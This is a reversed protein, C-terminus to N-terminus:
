SFVLRDTVGGTCVIVSKSTAESEDEMRVINSLLTKVVKSIYRSDNMQRSLFEQPIDEMLLKDKKSKNNAYHETVFAKYESESFIRVDGLTTCHIIEGGHKKIFEYGLLNSKLTNVEAECIVKNTFSDDFYRSQPIVHEIQYAPTFLKALSIAKGTYPSRYKQELWLKYRNLEKGSPQSMQSIKSIEEFDEDERNLEQLAGEEYIRLIEQQMPSYPHVNCIDTDNKLEILLSKIRLNTNENRLVNQTRRAREESTSKMERGLEVHIEDIQGTEKWIDHVTM